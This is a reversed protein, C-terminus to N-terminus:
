ANRIAAVFLTEEDETLDEIIMEDDWPLPEAKDLIETPSRELTPGNPNSRGADPESM